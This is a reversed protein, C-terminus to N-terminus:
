KKAKPAPKNLDALKQKATKAADSKPFTKQLEELSLKAEPLMKLEKFCDSSRLYATPASRTKQLFEQLVKGYEYLAERCKQENFYIEGLNYHADGAGDERPWKKLYEAFLKRAVDTEGAKAKEEALKLFEKPDDPKKLDDKKPEAAPGTTSGASSLRAELEQLKHQDAELQGRLMAVDQIAGDVKVGINAGTTRSATDLQSLAEQLRSTTKELKEQTEKLAEKLKANESGLTDVRQELLQGRDAPFFCSCFVLVLALSSRSM